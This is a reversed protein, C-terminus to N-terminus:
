LLNLLTRCTQDRASLTLIVVMRTGLCGSMLATADSCHMLQSKRLM